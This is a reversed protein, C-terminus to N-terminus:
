VHQVLDLRQRAPDAHDRVPAHEPEALHVLQQTLKAILMRMANQHGDVVRPRERDGEQLSGMDAFELDHPPFRHLEHGVLGSIAYRSSATATTFVPSGM